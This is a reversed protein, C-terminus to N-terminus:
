TLFLYPRASSGVVSAAVVSAPLDALSSVQGTLRPARAATASPGVASAGYVAPVAAGSVVLPGIAYWNGGILTTPSSLAKAGGTETFTGGALLTTDNPTSGVLALDGNAAVSYLGFRIVTPTAAAATTGIPMNVTAYQKTLAARFFALQLRGSTLAVGATVISSRPMTEQAGTIAEGDETSRYTQPAVTGDGLKVTGDAYLEYRNFADGTVKTAHVLTTAADLTGSGPVGSTGNDSPGVRELKSVM